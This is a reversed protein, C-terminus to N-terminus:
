FVGCSFSDREDDRLFDFGGRSVEGCVRTLPRFAFVFSSVLASFVSFGSGEGGAPPVSLLAAAKFVLRVAGWCALLPLM